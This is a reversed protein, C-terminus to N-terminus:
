RSIASTTPWIQVGEIKRAGARVLAAVAKYIAERVKENESVQMFATEYDEVRANWTTKGSITTGTDSRVPEKVPAAVAEPIAEVQEEEIQEGAAAAAEIEAQRAAAAAAQRRQEERIRAEEARREAELKAVFANMPKEATRKAVELRGALANKQGDAVRGAELYPAKVDKHVTEVHKTAARIMKVLDGARGLTEEDTVAVRTAAAEIQDVRTLFDPRNTLLAERFQAIVDDEIPPKNGGIVARDNEMLSDDPWEPADAFVTNKM